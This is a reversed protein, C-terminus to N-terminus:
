WPTWWSELDYGNRRLEDGEVLQEYNPRDPWVLECTDRMRRLSGAYSAREVGPIVNEFHAGGVGIGRPAFLRKTDLYM